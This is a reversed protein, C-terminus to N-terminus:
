SILIGGVRERGTYFKISIPKVTQIIMRFPPQVRDGGCAGHVVFFTFNHSNNKM